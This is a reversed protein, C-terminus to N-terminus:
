PACRFAEAGVDGIRPITNAVTPVAETASVCYGADDTLSESTGVTHALQALYYLARHFVQSRREWFQAEDTWTETTCVAHAIQILPHFVRHIVQGTATTSTHDIGDPRM